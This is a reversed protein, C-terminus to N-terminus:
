LNALEIFDNTLTAGSNGGGGYVENIVPGLSIAAAPSALAAGGVATAAALAVATLVRTLRPRFQRM